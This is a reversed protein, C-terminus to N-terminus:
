QMFDARRFISIFTCKLIWLKIGKITIKYRHNGKVNQTEVAKDSWKKQSSFDSKAQTIM